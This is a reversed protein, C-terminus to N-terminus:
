RPKPRVVRDWGRGIWRDARTLVRLTGALAVCDIATREVADPRHGETAPWVPARFCVAHERGPLRLRLSCPCCSRAAGLDVDQLELFGATEFRHLFWRVQEVPISGAREGLERVHDLGKWRVTGDGRLILQYDSSRGGDEVSELEVSVLELADATLGFAETAFDTSRPEITGNMRIWRELGLMSDIADGLALLEDMTRWGEVERGEGDIRGGISDDELAKHEEGIRLRLIETPADGDFPGHRDELRLFDIARFRDFLYAVEFPAVHTTRQGIAGVSSRGKWRLSGDSDLTVRFAPCSGFCTTRELEISADPPPPSAIAPSPDKRASSAPETTPTQLGVFPIWLIWSRSRVFTRSSV